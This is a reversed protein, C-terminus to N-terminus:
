SESQSMSYKGDDFDKAAGTLEAIKEKVATSM